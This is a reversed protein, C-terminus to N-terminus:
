FVFIFVFVCSVFLDMGIAKVQADKAQSAQEEAEPKQKGAQILQSILAKEDDDVKKQESRNLKWKSYHDPMALHCSAIRGCSLISLQSGKDFAQLDLVDM